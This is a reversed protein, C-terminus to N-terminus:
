GAHGRRKMGLLGLLGTGFLWVVGPEPVANVQGPSVAWAYLQYGKYYHYQFGHGTNFFWAGLPSGSYVTSSWYAYTQENTFHSNTPILSSATGGLESYFLQGLQDGATGDYGYTGNSTPLAWQSSNGYDISNLYHVFAQAGWWDATGTGNGNFDSFSLTYTGNDYINPTDHIVGGNAAIIANIVTSSGQQTEMTGLLNADSTWTVNSVSSYVGLGNDVTTLVAHANLSAASLLAVAYSTKNLKM